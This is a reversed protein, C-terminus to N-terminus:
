WKFDLQCITSKASKSLIATRGKHTDNVQVEAARPKDEWEQCACYLPFHVVGSGSFRIYCLHFM